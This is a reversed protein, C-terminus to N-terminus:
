LRGGEPDRVGFGSSRKGECSLREASDAGKALSFDERNLRGGIVLRLV